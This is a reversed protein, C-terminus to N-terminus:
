KCVHVPSLHATSLKSKREGNTALCCISAGGELQGSVDLERPGAPEGKAGRLLEEKHQFTVAFHAHSSLFSFWVGRTMLILTPKTHRTNELSCMTQQNLLTQVYTAGLDNFIRGINGWRQTSVWVQVPKDGLNNSMHDEAGGM